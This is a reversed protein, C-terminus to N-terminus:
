SIQQIEEGICNQFSNNKQTSNRLLLISPSAPIASTRPKFIHSFSPLSLASRTSGCDKLICNQIISNEAQIISFPSSTIEDWNCDTFQCETMTTNRILFLCKTHNTLLKDETIYGAAFATAAIFKINNTLLEDETNESFCHTFRTTSIEVNTLEVLPKAGNTKCDQFHSATITGKALSVGCKHYIKKFTCGLFDVHKQKSKFTMNEFDCMIFSIRMANWEDLNIHADKKSVNAIILHKTNHHAASDIDYVIQHFYFATEKAHKISSKGLLEIYREADQAAVCKALQIVETIEAPPVEMLVALEAIYELLFTDEEERLLTLIMADLLFARTLNDRRICEICEVMRADTMAHAAPLLDHVDQAYDAGKAIRYLHLWQAEKAEATTLVTLLLLHYLEPMSCRAAPHGTYPHNEADCRLRAFDFSEAAAGANRHADLEHTVSALLDAAEQLKNQLQAITEM